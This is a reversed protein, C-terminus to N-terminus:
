FTGVIVCGRMRNLVSKLAAKSCLFLKVKGSVTSLCLVWFVKMM